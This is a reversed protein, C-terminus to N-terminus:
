FLSVSNTQVTQQSHKTRPQHDKLNPKSNAVEPLIRIFQLWAANDDM